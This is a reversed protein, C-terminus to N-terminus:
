QADRWVESICGEEFHWRGDSQGSVLLARIRKVEANPPIDLAVMGYQTAGEGRVGFPVLADLVAQLDGSLPGSAAPIVRITCHGSQELRDTAWLVGDSGALARVVDGMALNRVFWPTNAIRYSDDGVAEAWMGESGVPPWGEADADLRFRVKVVMSSMAQEASVEVGRGTRNVAPNPTIWDVPKEPSAPPAVLM